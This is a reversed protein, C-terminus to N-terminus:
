LGPTSSLRQELLIAHRSRVITPCVIRTNTSVLTKDSVSSTQTEDTTETGNPSIKTTITTRLVRTTVVTIREVGNEDTESTEISTTSIIETTTSTVENNNGCIINNKM